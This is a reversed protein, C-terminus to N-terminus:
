KDAEFVGMTVSAKFSTCALQLAVHVNQPPDLWSCLTKNHWGNASEATYHWQVNRYYVEIQQQRDRCNGCSGRGGGIYKIAWTDTIHLIRIFKM